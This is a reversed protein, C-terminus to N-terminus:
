VYRLGSQILRSGEGHNCYFVYTEQGRFPFPEAKWFCLCREIQGILKPLMPQPTWPSSPSNVHRTKSFRILFCDEHFLTVILSSLWLAGCSWSM